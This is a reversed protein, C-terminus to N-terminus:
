PLGILPAPKVSAPFALPLPSFGCTLPAAALLTIAALVTVTKGTGPPGCVCIAPFRTAGGPSTPPCPIGGGVACDSSSSGGRLGAVLGDPRSWVVGVARYVACRQKANPGGLITAAAPVAAALQALAVAEVPAGGLARGM